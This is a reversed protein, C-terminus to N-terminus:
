WISVRQDADLWLADDPTVDFADYFADINRVIQNCRFENPSHPDTALRQKVLADRSKQQWVQAWGLFLRQAPTYGDIPEGDPDNGALLWAKYAISLGGLDGINEGITLEGNVHQGAAQAPSLANYQDILSATRQEFAERDAPTWWDRLVGDGDCTSGQDDFGHGIEHGIVAGIGGYNVADDANLNFFPPQLIAAPFVIENRLPHYYANVTQPYMLWEDPDVPGSLKELSYDLAFSNARLVNGILDDPVVILQSYDRWTNPYGIKPRFKSLKDLAQARTDDTMWDLTEISARYARLLNAVLEDMRQKAESPFCREVYLKGIAEGFTAEALAVGRKWRDRLEETGQLRREYFDFRENVFDSSLLPSLMSALHWRAFSRWASIPVDAILPAVDTFFSPQAVIVEGVASAPIQASSIFEDLHLQPALAVFESWTMPNYMARMDRCRVKDWHCAAIRTELDFVAEAQADADEYGALRLTAAIHTRYAERTEAHKDERYYAEDPLGLGSQFAFMLYRKPNGPDSDESLGFLGSRGHRASWGWHRILALPSDIADIPALLRHLPQAGAREVADADMFSAYLAAVKGGDGEAGPDLSTIIDRVAAESADRLAIFAGTSPKDAPITATDLWTGNVHRYLDEAPSVTADFDSLHLAPESVGVVM